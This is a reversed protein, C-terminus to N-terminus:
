LVVKFKTLDNTNDKYSKAYDSSKKIDKICSITETAALVTAALFAIIGVMLGIKIMMRTKM